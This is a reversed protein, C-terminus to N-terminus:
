YAGVLYGNVFVFHQAHNHHAQQHHPQHFNRRLEEEYEREHDQNSQQADHQVHAFNNRNAIRDQLQQDINQRCFPCTAATGQAQADAIIRALCDQCIIKNRCCTMTITNQKDDMCINCEQTQPEQQNNNNQAQAQPAQQNNDNHNQAPPNQPAQQHNQPENQNTAMTHVIDYQADAPIDHWTEEDILTSGAEQNSQMVQELYRAYRQDDTMHQWQEQESQNQQPQQVRSNEAILDFLTEYQAEAPMTEWVDQRLTGGANILTQYRQEQSLASWEEPLMHDQVM